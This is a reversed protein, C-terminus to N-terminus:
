ERPVEGVKRPRPACPAAAKIPAIPMTPHSFAVPAGTCSINGEQRGPASTRLAWKRNSTRAPLLRNFIPLLCPVTNWIPIGAKAVLCEWDWIGATAPSPYIGSLSDWQGPHGDWTLLRRQSVWGRLPHGMEGPRQIPFIRRHRQMPSKPNQAFSLGLDVQMLFDDRSHSRRPNPLGAVGGDIWGQGKTPWYANPPGRRIETNM